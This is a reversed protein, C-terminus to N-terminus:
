WLLITIIIIMKIVSGERRIDNQERQIDLVVRPTIIEIM